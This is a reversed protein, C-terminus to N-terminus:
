DNEQTYCGPCVVSRDVLYVLGSRDLAAGCSSCHGTARDILAQQQRAWEEQFVALAAERSQELEVPTANARTALVLLAGTKVEMCLSAGAWGTKVVPVGRRRLDHAIGEAVRERTLSM